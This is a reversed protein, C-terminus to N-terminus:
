RRKSWEKTRTIPSNTTRPHIALENEGDLVRFHIDEAIITVIKGPLRSEM